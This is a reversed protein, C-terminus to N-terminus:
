SPSGDAEVQFDNHVCQDSTGKGTFLFIGGNTPMYSEEMGYEELNLFSAVIGIWLDLFARRASYKVSEEDQEMGGM